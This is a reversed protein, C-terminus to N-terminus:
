EGFMPITPGALKVARTHSANRAHWPADRRLHCGSCLAILNDPANNSPDHDLHHVSMREVQSTPNSCDRGCDRCIWGAATKIRTSIEAWDPPYLDSQMPM